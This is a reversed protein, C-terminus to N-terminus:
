NRVGDFRFKQFQRFFCQWLFGCWRGAFANFFLRLDRWLWFGRGLRWWRANPRGSRGCWRDPWFSNCLGFRLRWLFFLCNFCRLRLVGGRWGVQGLIDVLSPRLRLLGSNRAPGGANEVAGFVGAVFVRLRLGGRLFDAHRFHPAVQLHGAGAPNKLDELYTRTVRTKREAGPGGADAVRATFNDFDPCIRVAIDLASHSPTHIFPTKRRSPMERIRAVASDRDAFLNPDFRETEADREIQARTADSADFRVSGMSHAYNLAKGRRSHAIWASSDITCGSYNVLFFWQGEGTAAIREEIRDYFANVLGSDTFAFNSFDAEMTQLDDHFTIRADFDPTM